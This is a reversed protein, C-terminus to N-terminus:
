DICRTDNQVKDSEIETKKNAPTFPIGAIKCDMYERWERRGLASLKASVAYERLAKGYDGEKDERDGFVCTCPVCSDYLRHEEKGHQEPFFVCTQGDEKFFLINIWGTYKKRFLV